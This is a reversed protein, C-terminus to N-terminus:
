AFLGELLSVRALLLGREDHPLAAAERVQHILASLEVPEGTRSVPMKLNLASVKGVEGRTVFSTMVLLLDSDDIEPLEEKQRAESVAKVLKPLSAKVDKAEKESLARGMVEDLDDRFGAKARQSDSMADLREKLTM